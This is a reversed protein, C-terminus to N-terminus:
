ESLSKKHQLYIPQKSIIGNINQEGLNSWLNQVVQNERRTLLLDYLIKSYKILNLFYLGVDVIPYMIFILAYLKNYTSLNM